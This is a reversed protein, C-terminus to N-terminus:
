SHNQIKSPEVFEVKVQSIFTLGELRGAETVLFALKSDRDLIEYNEYSPDLRPEEKKVLFFGLYASAFRLLLLEENIAQKEAKDKPKPSELGRRESEKMRIYTDRTWLKRDEPLQLFKM